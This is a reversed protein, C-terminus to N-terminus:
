EEVADLDVYERITYSDIEAGKSNIIKLQAYVHNPSNAIEALRGLFYVQASNFDNYKKVAPAYENYTGEILTQELAMVYYKM